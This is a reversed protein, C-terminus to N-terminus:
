LPGPQFTQLKSKCICSLYRAMENVYKASSWIIKIGAGLLTIPFETPPTCTNIKQINLVNAMCKLDNRVNANRM